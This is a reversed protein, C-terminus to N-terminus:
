EKNGKKCIADAIEEIDYDPRSYTCTVGDDTIKTTLYKELIEIVRDRDVLDVEVGKGRKYEKETKSEEKTMSRMEPAPSCIADALYEFGMKDETMFEKLAEFINNVLTRERDSLRFDEDVGSTQYNDIADKIATKVRERDVLQVALSCIQDKFQELDIAGTEDTCQREIKEIRDRDLTSVPQKSKLFKYVEFLHNNARDRAKTALENLESESVPYQKEKM